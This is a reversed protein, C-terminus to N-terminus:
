RYWRGLKEIKRAKAATLGDLSLVGNSILIDVLALVDGLEQELAERNSMGRAPWVDDMGFRVIKAKIQIVEACEEALIELNQDIDSFRALSKSDFLTMTLLDNSIM